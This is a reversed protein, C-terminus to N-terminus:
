MRNTSISGIYWAYQHEYSSSKYIDQFLPLMLFEMIAWQIRKVIHTCDLKDKREITKIFLKTTTWCWKEDYHEEQAESVTFAPSGPKLM